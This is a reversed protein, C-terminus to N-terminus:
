KLKRPPNFGAKLEAVMHDAHVRALWEAHGDGFLVNMGDRNHNALPEYALIHAPTLLNWTSPLPSALVYSCRGPKAFDQLLAQTTPGHAREDDSSPCVFVESTLDQTVLVTALDPPLQGKNDNAYMEIALGIQRLNSACKIRIGPVGSNTAPMLFLAGFLLLLQTLGLTTALTAMLLRPPRRSGNGRPRAAVSLGITTVSLTLLIALASAPERFPRVGVMLLALLVFFLLACILAAVALLKRPGSAALDGTTDYSLAHLSQSTEPSPENLSENM